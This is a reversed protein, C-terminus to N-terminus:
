EARKSTYKHNPVRGDQRILFEEFEFGGGRFRVMLGGKEGRLWELQQTHLHQLLITLQPPTPTHGAAKLQALASLLRGMKAMEEPPLALFPSLAANQKRAWQVTAFEVNPLSM